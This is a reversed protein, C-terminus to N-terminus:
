LERPLEGFRSNAKARGRWKAIEEAFRIHAQAADQTALVVRGPNGCVQVYYTIEDPGEDLIDEETIKHLIVAIAPRLGAMYRHMTTEIRHGENVKHLYRLKNSLQTDLDTAM